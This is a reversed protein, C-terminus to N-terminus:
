CVVHTPPPSGSVHQGEALGHEEEAISLNLDDLELSSVKGSEFQRLSYFEPKHGGGGKCPM